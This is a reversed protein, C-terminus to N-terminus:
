FSRHHRVDAWLEWIRIRWIIFNQPSSFPQTRETNPHPCSMPSACVFVSFLLNETQTLTLPCCTPQPFPVQRRDVFLSQEHDARHPSLISPRAYSGSPYDLEGYCVSNSNWCRGRYSYKSNFTTHKTAESLLPHPRHNGRDTIRRPQYRTM